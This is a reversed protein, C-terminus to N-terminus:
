QSSNNEQKTDGINIFTKNSNKQENSKSNDIINTIKYVKNAVFISIILGLISALSGIDSLLSSTM